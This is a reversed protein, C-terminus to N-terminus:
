KLLLQSELESIKEHLWNKGSMENESIYKKIETLDSKGYSRKQFNCRFDSLMKLTSIFNFFGSMSQKSITKDSKFFHKSSDILNYLEETYGLEYYLFSQYVKINLKDMGATYNCKSLYGIAAEYNKSKFNLHTLAFNVSHERIEEKLKSKYREIFEECWGFEGATCAAIVTNRFMYQDIYKSDIASFLDNVAMIKTYQYQENVYFSKGRGANNKCFNLMSCTFDYKDKLSYKNFNEYYIEKLRFYNDENFPDYVTKFSLYVSESYYDKFEYEEYSKIIKSVNHDEVPYNYMFAIQYRNYNTHFFTIYFFLCLNRNLSNFDLEKLDKINHKLAQLETDKFELLYNFLYLEQDNNLEKLDTLSEKVKKEFFNYLGRSQLQELINLVSDFKKHSYNELEIFKFALKNLDYILNKMVGYNYQKSPFLKKWIIERNMEEEPFGSLHKKIELFLKLVNEKKNFYPSRVIDEFKILEEISFSNIIEILSSKLM